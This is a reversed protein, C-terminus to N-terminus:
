SLFPVNTTRRSNCPPRIVALAIDSTRRISPCQVSSIDIRPKVPGGANANTIRSRRGCERSPKLPALPKGHNAEARDTLGKCSLGINSM